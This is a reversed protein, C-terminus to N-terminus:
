DRQQHESRQRVVDNCVLGRMRQEVAQVPAIGLRGVGVHEGEVFAEGVDDRQELM